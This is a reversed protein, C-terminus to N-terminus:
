CLCAEIDAHADANRNGAIVSFSGALRQPLGIM